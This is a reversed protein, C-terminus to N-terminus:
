RGVGTYGSRIIRGVLSLPETSPNLFVNPRKRILQLDTVDIELYAGLRKTLTPYTYLAASVDEATIPGGPEFSEPTIDTLYQGPGYHARSGLSPLLENSDLIGPLKEARTYHFLSSPGGGEIAPLADEAIPKLDRAAAAGLSRFERMVGSAEKGLGSLREAARTLGRFVASIRSGVSGAFATARSGLSSAFAGLRELGGGVVGGLGRLLAGFVPKVLTKLVPPVLVLALGAGAFTPDIREGTAPDTGTLFQYGFVLAAGVPNFTMAVEVVSLPNNIITQVFHGSPDTFRLPNATAYAYRNGTQPASAVGAFTDRGSFRGLAPDYSRARLNLLGTTDRYEAAYGIGTSATSGPRPVGYPDYHVLGSTAGGTAVYLLPSGTLDTLASQWTGSAEYGAGPDGPLYKAVGDALITPNPTQLDLDFSTTVAGTTQSWRNGAGDLAYTTTAGGRTVSTLRGLTDYAYTRNGYSGDSTMNGNDDYTPAAATGPVTYDVKVSVADLSATFATNDNGRTARVQVEFTGNLLNARTL